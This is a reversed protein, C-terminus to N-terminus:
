SKTGNLNLNLNKLMTKQSVEVTNKIPVFSSLKQAMKNAKFTQFKVYDAGSNSAVDILDITKKLEGNHNVGAEAIILIKEKKM